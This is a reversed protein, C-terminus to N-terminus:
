GCTVREIVDYQNLWINLRTPQYDMTVAVDHEIVRVDTSFRMTQLVRAQDGVLFQLDAAGCANTPEPDVVVPVCAMVAIPLALLIRFTM